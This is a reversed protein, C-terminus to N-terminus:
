VLYVSFIDFLTYLNEKDKNEMLKEPDNILNDKGKFQGLLNEKLIAM